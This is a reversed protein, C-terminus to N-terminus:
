EKWIEMSKVRDASNLLQHRTLRLRLNGVSKNYLVMTCSLSIVRQQANGNSLSYIHFLKDQDRNKSNSTKCACGIGAWRTCVWVAPGTAM